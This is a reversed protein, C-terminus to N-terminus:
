TNKKKLCIVAYSTKVHSSNLRTSKRDLVVGRVTGSESSSISRARWSRAWPAPRPVKLFSNPSLSLWAFFRAAIREWFPCWGDHGGDDRDEERGHHAQGGEHRHSGGAVHGALEVALEGDGSGGRGDGAEGAEHVEPVPQHHQHHGGGQHGDGQHAE